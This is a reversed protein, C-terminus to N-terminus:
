STGTVNGAMTLQDLIQQRAAEINLGTAVEINPQGEPPVRRDFITAGRTLEGETEVDGCFEEFEFLRPEILSLMGVADNLNIGEHGLQQRYSRFAFPLIQRLFCGTRTNEAPLEDMIDFGFNVQRTLDLPIVTKTVTSQFVQRASQPDFYFNFEAAPTINGATALTGGTIVVRNILSPLTPDRQIAKALNTLPGLCIITVQNPFDKVCDRILKESPQLHQLQSVEFGANGLGDSGYLYSTNIPPANEAPQAMGLRPYRDPDLEGLIAQLNNNAQDATVCGETATLGIIELRTDFLSMCIAVADDTGMDCDIIVKRSM